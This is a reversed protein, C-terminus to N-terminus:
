PYFTISFDANLRKTAAVTESKKKAIPVTVCRRIM